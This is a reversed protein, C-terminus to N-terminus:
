YEKWSYFCGYRELLANFSSQKNKQKWSTKIKNNNKRSHCMWILPCYNFHPKFFVNKLTRKESWSMNSTVTALGHIQLCAKKCFEAIHHDFLFESDLYVGLFTERKTNAIEYSDTKIIVKGNSSVFLHCKVANSM